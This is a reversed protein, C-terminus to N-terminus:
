TDLVATSPEPQFLAERLAPVADIKWQMAALRVSPNPSEAIIEDAGAEVQSCMPGVLARMRLRVQNTTLSVDKAPHVEEAVRRQRGTVECGTAVAILLSLLSARVLTQAM